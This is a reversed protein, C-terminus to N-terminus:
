RSVSSEGGALPDHLWVEVDLRRPSASVGFVRTRQCRDRLFGEFRERQARPWDQMDEPSLVIWARRERRAWVDIVNDDYETLRAVDLPERPFPNSPALYYEAVPLAMGIVLDDPGREEAVFQYAEKWRPRDGHRLTFYLALDAVGWLVVAAALARRAGNWRTGEFFVGSALAAIWPLAVFVYQAAVRVFGAALFAVALVCALVLAPLLLESKRRRWGDWASWAAALAVPPGVFFAGSLALHTVSAGAKKSSYESFLAQGWTAAVGVGVLTIVVIARTSPSWRLPAGLKKCIWPAYVFAPLLMAASPHAFAALGALAVGTVYRPWSALACGSLMLGGGGLSLGQALTYGRASQSWFVHWSSLGLVLAAFAARESGLTGRFTWWTAAIGLAGFAAPLARLLGESPPGDFGSTWWSTLWLNLPFQTLQDWSWSRSDHLTFAEDIWLGWRGLGAFRLLLLLVVAIPLAWSVGRWPSAGGAGITPGNSESEPVFGLREFDDASPLV